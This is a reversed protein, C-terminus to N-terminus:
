RSAKAASVKGQPTTLIAPTGTAPPATEPQRVPLGQALVMKMAVDIPVRVVGAQRDVWGYTTLIAEEQERLTKMDAAANVQIRPEPPLIEEGPRAPQTLGSAPALQADSRAAQGSFLRFLLFIVLYTVIGIVTLGATFVVLPRLKVDRTEYATSDSQGEDTDHTDTM